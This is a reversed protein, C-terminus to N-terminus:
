LKLKETDLSLAIWLLVLILFQATLMGLLLGSGSWFLLGMEILLIMGYLIRSKRM